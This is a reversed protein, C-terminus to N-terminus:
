LSRAHVPVLKSHEVKKANFAIASRSPSPVANVKKVEKPADSLLEDDHLAFCYTSLFVRARRADTDADADHPLLDALVARTTEMVDKRSITSAIDQFTIWTTKDSVSPLGLKQYSGLLAAHEGHTSEM